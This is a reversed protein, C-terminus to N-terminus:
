GATGDKDPQKVESGEGKEGMPWKFFPEFSSGPKKQAKGKFNQNQTKVVTGGRRSAKMGIAPSRIKLDKQM